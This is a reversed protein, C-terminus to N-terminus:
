EAEGQPKLHRGLKEMLEQPIRAPRMAADVMVIEVEVQALLTQERRLHQAMLFRVRSIEKLVTEVTVVDDLTAPTKYDIGARRVVFGLRQAALMESQEIGAARLAETRAREAFKLYNAYYMIGAADTDEYYVRYAIEHTKQATFHGSPLTQM